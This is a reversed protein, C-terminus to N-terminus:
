GCGTGACGANMVFACGTSAGGANIVLCSSSQLNQSKNSAL